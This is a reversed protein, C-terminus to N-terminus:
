AMSRRVRSLLVVGLTGFLANPIWAAVVPEFWGQVALTECFMQLAYHSFALLACLFVGWARAGRRRRMGLAIGSLTFVVPTAPAALRRQLHLAYAIPEKERYPGPDGSAVRASKARLEQMTMERARLDTGPQIWESMDIEYDFSEFGIRQYRDDDAEPDDIHINGNSLRLTLAANAEDLELQGSEAFIMFPRKPDSRDAIVVGVLHGATDREDVYLLRGAMHSFRGPEVAAGRLLIKAFTVAFERRAAPEVELHLPSILASALVAIGVIPVAIGAVSVGCARMATIEVDAALRGVGLLVGFLLSIPLAYIALMTSLMRLVTLLDRYSFGVAALDGLHRMLNNTVLVTTIATLGLLTYQLVEWAIYRWLRRPARM